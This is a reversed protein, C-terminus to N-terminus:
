VVVRSTSAALGLAAFMVSDPSDQPTETGDCMAIIMASRIVEAVEEQIRCLQTFVTDNHDNYYHKPTHIYDAVHCARVSSDARAPPRPGRPVLSLFIAADAGVPNGGAAAVAGGRAPREVAKDEDGHALLLTQGADRRHEARCAM